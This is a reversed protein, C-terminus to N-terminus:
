PRVARMLEHAPVGILDALWEGIAQKSAQFRDRGMAGLKQSEATLIAVTPGSAEIVRYEDELLMRQLTEAFEAARAEDGLAVVQTQCFGTMCLAHKRLTDPTKAWRLDTAHDPLNSWAQRVFGFQHRHTARSREPDIEILRIEGEELHDHLIACAENGDPVLAGREWRMRVLAPRSM